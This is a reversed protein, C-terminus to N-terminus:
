ASEVTFSGSGGLTASLTEDDHLTITATDQATRTVTEGTARTLEMRVQVVVDTETTGALAPNFAEADFGADLLSGSLTESGTATGAPDRERVFTVTQLESESPGVRLEIVRETADPVSHNYGVDAEILVDSVDGSLTDETSAADFGEVSVSTEGQASTPVGAVLLAVAVALAVVAVTITAITRRYRATPPAGNHHVANHGRTACGFVEATGM